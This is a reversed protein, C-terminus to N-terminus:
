TGSAGLQAGGNFNALDDGGIGDGNDPGAKIDKSADLMYYKQGPVWRLTVVLGTAPAFDGTTGPGFKKNKGASIIQIRGANIGKGNLEQYPRMLFVSPSATPTNPAYDPTPAGPPPAWAYSPDYNNSGSTSFYAYPIGYPDLYGNLYGNPVVPNGIPSNVRSAASPNMRSLVFDFYPGKRSTAGPM